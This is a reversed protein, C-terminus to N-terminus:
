GDEPVMSIKTVCLALRRRDASAGIASPQEADPHILRLKDSGDRRIANRPIVCGVTTSTDLCFETLRSANFQVILRQFPLADGHLFPIATIRLAYDGAFVLSPFLVSSQSALMWRHKAEQGSWGDGINAAAGGAESLDLDVRGAATGTPASAGAARPLWWYYSPERQTQLQAAFDRHAAIPEGAEGLRDGDLSRNISTLPLAREHSHGALTAYDRAAFDAMAAIGEGAAVQLASEPMDYQASWLAAWGNDFARFFSVAKTSILYADSEIHMIRDFGHAIAYEVAFAFSRFWGPFDLVARRGLRETFHHLMVGGHRGLTRADAMRGGSSLRTDSWGPLVPSGDDVILIQDPNIGQKIADIWTRYRAHWLISSAAYSTCFVLTGGVPKGGPGANGRGVGGKNRAAM